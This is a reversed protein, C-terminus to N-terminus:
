KKGFFGGAMGAIDNLPNGDGDRDLMSAIGGMGGLGALIGGLGGAAPAAAGGQTAADGARLAGVLAGLGGEGGIHGLIQNLIDPSIGSQEASQQVTDGPIPQNKTLAAIATAAMAPDIGMKAAIAEAAQTELSGAIGDFLGMTRYEMWLLMNM